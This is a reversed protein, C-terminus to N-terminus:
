QICPQNVSGFLNGTWSNSGCLPNADAADIRPALNDTILNNQGTVLFRGGTAANFAVNRSIENGNGSVRFNEDGAGSSTNQKLVNFDGAVDYDIFHNEGIASNHLLLNGSGNIEFAVEGAFLAINGRLINNSGHVVFRRPRRHQMLQVGNATAVLNSRPIIFGGGHTSNATNGILWNNTSRITIIGESDEAQM